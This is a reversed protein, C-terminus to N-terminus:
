GKNLRNRLRLYHKPLGKLALQHNSYGRIDTVESHIWSPLIKPFKYGRGYEWEAVILGSLHGHFVDIEWGDQEFRDKDIWKGATPIEELIKYQKATLPLDAEHSKGTPKGDKGLIKFKMTLFDGADSSRVRVATKGPFYRQAMTNFKTPLTNLASAYCLFKREHEIM